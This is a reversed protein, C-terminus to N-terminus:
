VGGQVGNAHPLGLSAAALVLLMRTPNTLHALLTEPYPDFLIPQSFFRLDFSFLLNNQISVCKETSVFVEDIWFFQPTESIPVVTEQETASNESYCSQLERRPTARSSATLFNVTLECRREL